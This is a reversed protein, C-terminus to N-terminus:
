CGTGKRGPTWSRGQPCPNEKTARAAGIEGTIKASRVFRAGTERLVEVHQRKAQACCQCKTSGDHGDRSMCPVRSRRCCIHSRRNKPHRRRLGREAAFRFYIAGPRHIPIDAHSCGLGTAQCHPPGSQPAEQLAEGGWSAGKGKRVVFQIGPPVHGHPTKFRRANGSLKTYPLM